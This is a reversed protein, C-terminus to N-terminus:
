HKGHRGDEGGPRRVTQEGAASILSLDEDSLAQEYREETDRILNELRSNRVFRQYAFLDRLNQEHFSKM